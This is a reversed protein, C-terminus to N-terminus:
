LYRKETSLLSQPIETVDLLSTLRRVNRDRPAIVPPATTRPVVAAVVSAPQEDPDVPEVLVVAAPALGPTPVPVGLRPPERVM